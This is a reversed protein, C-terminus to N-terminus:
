GRARKGQRQAAAHALARLLPHAVTPDAAVDLFFEAGFRAEKGENLVRWFHARLKARAMEVPLSWRTNYSTIFRRPHVDGEAEWTDGEPGFGKWGVLYEWARDKRKGSRRAFM